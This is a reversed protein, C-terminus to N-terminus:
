VSVYQMNRRKRRLYKFLKWLLHLSGLFIVAWSFIKGALPFRAFFLGVLSFSWLIFLCCIFLKSDMGHIEGQFIDYGAVTGHSENEEVLEERVFIVEAENNVIKYGDGGNDADLVDVKDNESM